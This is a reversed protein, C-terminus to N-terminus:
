GTQAGDRMEVKGSPLHKILMDELETGRVPKSLYDTFGIKLYEKDAGNIANATLVIVPTEINASDKKIERFAEVGDPAPMMHDMLVLDFKEAKCMDIAEKGGGATKVQMQNKSLLAQVVKINMPVDDVVLIKADPAVFKEKYKKGAKVASTTFKGLPAADLVLQPIIVTFTSGAGQKSRVSLEGKMLGVLQKTIALGLGTGEINRNKSEDVRRFADFLVQQNEESIGVGTDKVDVKINISGPEYDDFSVSITIGGERTYKVANSLLNSLIQRIRVEDGQLKAPLNEDCEINLFLGKETATPAMMNYCDRLVKHFSYSDPIIEMRGAEIKSFDLIDNILSLLSDGAMRINESYEKVKPDDSERFVMENMGLLSNLPTRIEHSMNALFDSKAKSAKDADERASELEVMVRHASTTDDIVVYAGLIRKKKDFFKNFTIVFHEEHGDKERVYETSFPTAETITQGGLITRLPERSLDFSEMDFGFYDSVFHNTYLCHGEIDFLILGESMVQVANRMVSSRIARPVRKEAFYYILVVSVPYFLVSIDLPLSFLMYVVNLLVIFTVVSLISIYRNLYYSYSKAIKMFLFVFMLIIMLYDLTLHVNFLPHPSTLYFVVGTKSYQETIEFMHGFVINLFISLTDLILIVRMPIGITDRIRDHGTYISVFGGLFMIMWDISSFYFCYAIQAMVPHVSFAIFINAIISVTAFLMTKSLWRMYVDKVKKVARNTFFMVVIAIINLITFAIKGYM